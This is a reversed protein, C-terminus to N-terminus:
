AERANPICRPEGWEEATLSEPQRGKFKGAHMAARGRSAYPCWNPGPLRTGQKM